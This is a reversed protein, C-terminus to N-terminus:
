GTVKVAVLSQAKTGGGADADIEFVYDAAALAGLGVVAEFSGDGLATPAPLEAMTQGAQNLLRMTVKPTTGGPGYAQFRFLLQETRAFERVPTPMPVPASKIRQMERATHASFLAPTTIFAGVSTFDPVDVDRDIVDIREGSAAVATAKLRVGGPPVAFSVSGAPVSAAPNPKVDGDFVVQGTASRANLTVHDIAPAKPGPPADDALEWSMTVKAQGDAGKTAAAWVRFPHDRGPEEVSDLANTVAAPPRPKPPTMAKAVEDVSYAYYGKRARVEVDKRDVKVSIPHFKGDRPKETSTYGLLYYGSSDRLMQQLMQKPENVLIARGGTNDAIERLTDTETTLLQRDVTATITSGGPDGPDIATAAMGRPDMTYIATNSRSAAQFIDLFDHQLDISMFQGTGPTQGGAMSSSLLTANQVDGTLGEGVYLLSKRGDRLTGLYACVGELESIVVSNRVQEITRPDLFSAQQEVPYKPTYDYKRGQFNMIQNATSELDHSFTILSVPMLPTVIAVLDHPNLGRVFDALHGKIRMSATLHTHYDDLFIVIIRQDDRATEREQDSMSLIEPVTSPDVPTDDIAVYKFTEVTQPKNSEKVEFDSAKLDTIPQGQKDTVSVDVLVSDIRSRFTAQADSSATQPPPATTQSQRASVGPALAVMLGFGLGGLLIRSRSISVM